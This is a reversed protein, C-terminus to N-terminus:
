EIEAEHGEENWTFPYNPVDVAKAHETLRLPYFTDLMVALELTEKKGISAEATGPHPGHPIGGPHLTFSAIDV